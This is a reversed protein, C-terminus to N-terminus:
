VDAGGLIENQIAIISDLASEVDGILDDIYEKTAADDPLYRKDLKHYTDPQANYIELRVPHSATNKLYLRHDFNYWNMTIYGFHASYIEIDGMMEDYDEDYYVESTFKEGNVYAVLYDYSALEFYDDERVTHGVPVELYSAVFEKQTGPELWHTRNNVYGPADPDNISWDSPASFGGGQSIGLWEQAAAKEEDTLTETNTTLSAKVAKDVNSLTLAIYNYNSRSKIHGDTVRTLILCGSPDINIGYNLNSIKVLGAEGGAKAVDTNKVYEDLNVAISTNGIKEWADGVFIYEDFLNGEASEAIPVLYIANEIDREPLERVVVYKVVGPDGKAGVVSGLNTSTGNTYTIILEGNENIISTEIGVGDQGAVGSDGKEGQIGQEGRFDGNEKAILLAEEVAANLESVDAKNEDLKNVFSWIKNHADESTDHESILKAVQENSVLDDYLRSELADLRADINDYEDDHVSVYGDPMPRTKVAFEISTITHESESTSHVAYVILNKPIQLFVDPIDCIRMNNEVKIKLERSSKVGKHSLHVETVSDSLIAFKQGIDWQWFSTRGDFIKLINQPM